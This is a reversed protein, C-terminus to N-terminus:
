RGWDALRVTESDNARAAREALEARVDEFHDRTARERAIDRERRVPSWLLSEHRAEATM